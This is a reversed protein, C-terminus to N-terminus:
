WIFCSLCGGTVAADQVQSYDQTVSHEENQVVKGDKEGSTVWTKGSNGAGSRPLMKKCSPTVM